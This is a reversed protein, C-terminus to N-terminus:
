GNIYDKGALRLIEIKLEAERSGVEDLSSGLKSCKIELGELDSRLRTNEKKILDLSSELGVKESQETGLKDRTQQLQTSLKIAKEEEEEVKFIM